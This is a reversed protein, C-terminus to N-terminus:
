TLLASVSNIATELLGSGTKPNVPGTKPYLGRLKARRDKTAFLWTIDAGKNDRDTQWAEVEKKM